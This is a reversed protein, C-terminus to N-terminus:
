KEIGVLAIVHVAWRHAHPASSKCPVGSLSALAARDADSLSYGAVYSRTALHKNLENVDKFAPM